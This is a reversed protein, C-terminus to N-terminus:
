SRTNGDDLGFMDRLVQEAAARAAPEAANAALARLRERVPADDPREARYRVSSRDAAIVRCARRESMGHATQLHAVADREAAPTVM